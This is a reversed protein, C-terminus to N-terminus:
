DDLVYVLRAIVTTIGLPIILLQEAPVDYRCEATCKLLYVTLGSLGHELQVQVHFAIKSIVVSWARSM